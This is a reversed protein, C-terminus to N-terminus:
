KIDLIEKETIIIDMKIDDGNNPLLETLTGDLSIGVFTAYLHKTLFKDYLGRGRGIRNGRTDFFRGPIIIIEPDERPVEIKKPILFGMDNLVLDESYMCNGIQSGKIYPFQTLSLNKICPLIDVEDEMAIYAMTVKFIDKLYKGLNTNIMNQNQLINDATWIKKALSRYEMKSEIMEFYIIIRRDKSQM